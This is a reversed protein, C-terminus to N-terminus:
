PAHRTIIKRASKMEHRIDLERLQQAACNLGAANLNTLKLLRRHRVNVAGSLGGADTTQLQREDLTLDRSEGRCSFMVGRALQKRHADLLALKRVQQVTCESQATLQFM